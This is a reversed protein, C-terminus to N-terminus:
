KKFGCDRVDASDCEALVNEKIWVWPPIELPRWADQAFTIKNLIPDTGEYFCHGNELYSADWKAIKFTNVHDQFQKVDRDSALEEGEIYLPLWYGFHHTRIEDVTPCHVITDAKASSYFSLLIILLFIKFFM